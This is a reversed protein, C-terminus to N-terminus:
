SGQKWAADMALLVGDVSEQGTIVGNARVLGSMVGANWSTQQSDIVNAHNKLVPALTAM